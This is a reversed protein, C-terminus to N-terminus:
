KKLTIKTFSKMNLLCNKERFFNKTTKWRWIKTKRENGCPHKAQSRLICLFVEARWRLPSLCPIKQNPLIWISRISSGELVNAFVDQSNPCLKILYPDKNQIGLKMTYNLGRTQTNVRSDCYFRSKLMKLSHRHWCKKGTKLIIKNTWWFTRFHAHRHSQRMRAHTCYM